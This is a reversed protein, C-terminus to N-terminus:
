LIEYSRLYNGRLLLIRLIKKSFVRFTLVKCERITEAPFGVVSIEIKFIILHFPPLHLTILPFLQSISQTDFIIFLEIFFIFLDTIEKM